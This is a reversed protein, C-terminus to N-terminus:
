DLDSDFSKNTSKNFFNLEDLSTNFFKAIKHALKFGPTQKEREILSVYDKCIGLSEALQKQKLGEKLRLEKFKSM